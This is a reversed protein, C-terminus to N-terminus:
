CCPTSASTPNEPLLWAFWLKPKSHNHFIYPKMGSILPPLPNCDECARASWWDPLYPGSTQLFRQGNEDEATVLLILHRLPSDTPVHHGAKDNTLTVQVQLNDGDTSATVTMSVANQLLVEDSAGPMQHSFITAPDRTLGGKEPLAFHDMGLRPM